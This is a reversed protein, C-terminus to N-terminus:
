RAAHEVWSTAYSSYYAYDTFTEAPVILPPIQLLLCDRCLRLHLPYTPEPDDIGAALLFSGCPPSAGLDLVSVLDESACLRCTMSM